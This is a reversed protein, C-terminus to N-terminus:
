SCLRRVLIDNEPVCSVVVVIRGAMRQELEAVQLAELRTDGLTVSTFPINISSATALHARHYESPSRLDCVFVSDPQNRVLAILDRASIRPSIEDQLDRM